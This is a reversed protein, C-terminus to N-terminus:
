TFKPVKSSSPSSSIIIIFIIWTFKPVGLRGFRFFTNGGIVCCCTNSIKHSSIKPLFLNNLFFKFNLILFSFFDCLLLYKCIMIVLHFKSYLYFVFVNRTQGTCGDSCPRSREVNCPSEKVPQFPFLTPMVVINIIVIIIM